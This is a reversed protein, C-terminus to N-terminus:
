LWDGMIREAQNLLERLRLVENKLVEHGNNTIIYEKKPSNEDAKFIEIWGKDSLTNLAGYLTGPSLIVRGGSLEKVFQMIGYGHRPKTLALLIYFVGETLAGGVRRDTM